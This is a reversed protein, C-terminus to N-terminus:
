CHIRVSRFKVGYCTYADAAIKPETRIIGPPRGAVLESRHPTQNSVKRPVEEGRHVRVAQRLRVPVQARATFRFALTRLVKYLM